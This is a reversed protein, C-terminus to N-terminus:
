AVKVFWVDGVERVGAGRAGRGAAALEDTVLAFGEVAGSEEDVVFEARGVSMVSDQFEFPTGDRGYGRPFLKPLVVRFTTTATSPASRTMRVHSSWVRPWAAYISDTANARVDSNPSAGIIPAFDALVAACYSSTSSPACFTIRGYAPDEYTGAFAAIDPGAQTSSGGDKTTSPPSHATLDTTYQFNVPLTAAGDLPPLDLAEDIIRFLVGLNDNQKEDMNVLQVVGLNEAPLLAVLASFGPIAGFHWVVDHGRYAMRFWGMGYGMIGLPGQPEGSVIARATMMETLVSPPLVTQNTYPDVGGNLLMTVWKVMDEATTIIGGAGAFLASAEESFVFPIRRTGRTWSQTLRGTANATSPSFFTSSMNLPKLIRSTVFDPYSTNSLKEILHPGIMFAQNNYAWKERLEFGPSLHKLRRLLDATTDGPAYSFDHEGPLLDYFKSDWQLPPAGAPLPTVNRGHAFDDILLGISTVLFAKSCSAIAFLTDSTLDAGNDEETRNGWTALEVVPQKDEGLRVVGMSLGPISSVHLIREVFDSVAPTIITKTKGSKPANPTKLPIQDAAGHACQVASSLLAYLCGWRVATVTARM